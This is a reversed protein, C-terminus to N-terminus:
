KLWKDLEKQLIELHKEIDNIKQQWFDKNEQRGYLLSYKLAKECLVKNKSAIGIEKLIKLM